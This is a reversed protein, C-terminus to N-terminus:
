ELVCEIVNPEDIKTGDIFNMSPHTALFARLEKVSKINNTYNNFLVTVNEDNILINGTFKNTKKDHKIKIKKYLGLELHIIENHAIMFYRKNENIITWHDVPFKKGIRFQPPISGYDDISSDLEMLKKGDWIYVGENRYRDEEEGSENFVILDGEKIVDKFSDNLKYNKIETLNEENDYYTKAM